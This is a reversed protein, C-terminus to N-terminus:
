YPADFTIGIAASIPRSRRYFVTDLGEDQRDQAIYGEECTVLLHAVFHELRWGVEHETSSYPEPLRVQLDGYCPVRQSDFSQLAQRVSGSRVIRCGVTNPGRPNRTTTRPVNYSSPVRLPHYFMYHVPIGTSNEYQEIREYQDDGKRLAKYESTQKFRFKRPESVALHTEESDFLRGFGRLYDLSRDEGFDEETPYLRKSQLLAIKSRVFRGAHRFMVLFGIDAIEWLGFHNGGGLYHTDLRITWGSDLKLPASYNSIHEIFTMDLSTEHVNPMKSIKRSVALNCAAFINELFILVDDPLYIQNLKSEKIQVSHGLPM